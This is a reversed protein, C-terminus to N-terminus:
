RDSYYNYYYYHGPHDDGIRNTAPGTTVVAMPPPRPAVVRPSSASVVTLVGDALYGKLTAADVKNTDITFSKQITSERDLIRRTAMVSITTGEKEIGLTVNSLSVGPLDLSRVVTTTMTNNNTTPYGAEVPILTVTEEEEEEEKGNPVPVKTPLIIRLVGDELSAQLHDSEADTIDTLAFSRQFKTTRKNPRKREAEVQLVGNRIEVKTDCARVGPLDLSFEVTNGDNLYQIRSNRDQHIISSSSKEQDNHDCVKQKKQHHHGRSAAAAVPPHHSHIAWGFQPSVYYGQDDHKLKIAFKCIEEPKLPLSISVKRRRRKPESGIRTTNKNNNNNNEYEWDFNQFSPEQPDNESRDETNSTAMDAGTGTTPTTTTTTTTPTKSKNRGAGSSSSKANASTRSCKCVLRAGSKPVISYGCQVAAQQLDTRLKVYTPNSKDFPAADGTAAPPYMSADLRLQKIEQCYHPSGPLYRCIDITTATGTTSGTSENPPPDSDGTTVITVNPLLLTGIWCDSKQDVYMQLAETCMKSVSNCSASNKSM